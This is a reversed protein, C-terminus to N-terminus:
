YAKIIRLAEQWGNEAFTKIVNPVYQKLEELSANGTAVMVHPLKLRQIMKAVFRSDDILIAIDEPSFGMNAKAIGILDERNVTMNGFAGRINGNKDRFYSDLRASILKAEARWYNNGTLIGYPINHAQLNHLLDLVGPLIFAPKRQLVEISADAWARHTDELVTVNAAKEKPMVKQLVELIIAKETKGVNDIMEEHANLGFVKKFMVASAPVNAESPAHLLTEDVDLLVIKTMSSTYVVEIM